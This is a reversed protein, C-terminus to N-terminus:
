KNRYEKIAKDYHYRSARNFFVVGNLHDIEHQFVRATIGGLKMTVKTGKINQYEVTIEVPRRVRVFFGPFSLCGEKLIATKKSSELIKPNFIIVPPESDIVFARAKVDIQNAALGLGNKARMIDVMRARLQEPDHTPNEFDFEPMTEALIEPIPFDTRKGLTQM